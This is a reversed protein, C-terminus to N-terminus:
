CPIIDNGIENLVWLALDRFEAKQAYHTVLPKLKKIRYNAIVILANRKLKKGAARQLPTSKLLKQLNKNSQELIWCLSEEIEPTVQFLPVKEGDLHSGYVKENWPCHTQCLDCGFLWDGMLTRLEIPPTEKSEITLYSICKTADLIYPETIAKTPCVDICRTCKGCHDTPTTVEAFIKLSTYIEGIFFLSGHKKNLLCTNKGFWGLGARHALDRELVPASDTFVKFHESPFLEQLENAITQLESSFCFHYDEGRAYLAKRLGSLLYPPSPSPISQTQTTQHTPSDKLLSYPHPVYNKTIVIASNATAMLKQPSEKKESHSELYTMKGHYGKKIWSQYYPWTLPRKLPTWGWNDLSYKKLIEDIHSIKNDYSRNSNMSVM